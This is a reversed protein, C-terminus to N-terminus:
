DIFHNEVVRRWRGKMRERPRETKFACFKGGRQEEEWPCYAVLIHQKEKSVDREDTKEEGKRNALSVSSAKLGTTPGGTKLEWGSGVEEELRDM